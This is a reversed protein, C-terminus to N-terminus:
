FQLLDSRSGVSRASGRGSMSPSVGSFSPPPLVGGPTNFQDLHALRSATPTMHSSGPTVGYPMNRGRKRGTTPPPPPMGDYACNSGFLNGASGFNRSSAFLRCRSMVSEFQWEISYRLSVACQRKFISYMCNASETFKRNLISYM